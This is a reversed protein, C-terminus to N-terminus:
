NSVLASPVMGLFDRMVFVVTTELVTWAPLMLTVFDLNVNMSIQSNLTGIKMGKCVKVYMCTSVPATSKILM